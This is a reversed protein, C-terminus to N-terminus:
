TESQDETFHSCFWDSLSHYLIYLCSQLKRGWYASMLSLPKPVIRCCHTQHHLFWIAPHNGGWGWAGCGSNQSHCKRFSVCGLGCNLRHIPSQVQFASRMSIVRHMSCSMWMCDRTQVKFIFGLPWDSPCWDKRKGLGENKTGTDFLRWLSRSCTYTRLYEISFEM